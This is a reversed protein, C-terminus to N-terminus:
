GEMFRAQGGGSVVLQITQEDSTLAVEFPTVQGLPQCQIQPLEITDDLAQRRGELILDVDVNGLWRRPRSHGSAPLATWGEPRGQWFDFGQDTIRIGRPRSQFMSQECHFDLLASFRSLQRRPDAPSSWAGVSLVVLASLVAGITVVVLLEILTFGDASRRM